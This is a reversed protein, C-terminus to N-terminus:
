GSGEGFLARHAPDLIVVKIVHERLFAHLWDLDAQRALRPLKATWLVDAKKLKVRKSTAIRRATEQLAAEGGQSSFVAVPVRRTVPFHGLFDSGTGLSLALDVAISTKMAKIPGAVVAPQDALLVSEVLWEHAYSAAELESSTLVRWGYEGAPAVKATAGKGEGQVKKSTNM